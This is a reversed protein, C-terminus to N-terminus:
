RELEIWRSILIDVKRMVFDLSIPLIKKMTSPKECNLYLGFIELYYM